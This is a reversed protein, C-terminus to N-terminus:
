ATRCLKWTGKGLRGKEERIEIKILEIVNESKQTDRKHQRGRFQCVIEDRFSKGNAVSAVLTSRLDM